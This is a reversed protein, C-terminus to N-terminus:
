KRGVLDLIVGERLASQSAEMHSIDFTESVILIALGGAFVGARALGLGPLLSADRLRVIERCTKTFFKM